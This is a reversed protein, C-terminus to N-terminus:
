RDRGADLPHECLRDTFPEPGSQSPGLVVVTGRTCGSMAHSPLRPSMRRGSLLPVLVLPPAACHPGKGPSRVVESDRFATPCRGTPRPSPTDWLLSALGHSSRMRRECGWLSKQVAAVVSGLNLTGCMNRGALQGLGAPPLGTRTSVPTGPLLGWNTTSVRRASRPTLLRQPPLLIAPRVAVPRSDQLRTLSV